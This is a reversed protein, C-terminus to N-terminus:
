NLFGSGSSLYFPSFFSLFPFLFPPIGVNQFDPLSSTTSSTSVSVLRWFLRNWCRRWFVPNSGLGSSLFICKQFFIFTLICLLVYFWANQRSSVCMKLLLPRCLAVCVLWAFYKVSSSGWSPAMPVTLLSLYHFLRREYDAAFFVRQPCKKWSLKWSPQFCEFVSTNQVNECFLSKEHEVGFSFDFFIHENQHM